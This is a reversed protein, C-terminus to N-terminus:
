WVYSAGGHPTRASLWVSDFQGGYPHFQVARAAYRCRRANTRPSGLRSPAWAPRLTLHAQQALTSCHTRVLCPTPRSQPLPANRQSRRAVLASKTRKVRAHRPGVHPARTGHLERFWTTPFKGFSGGVLLQDWHRDMRNREARRVHSACGHPGEARTTGPRRVFDLFVGM